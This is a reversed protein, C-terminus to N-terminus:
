FPPPSAAIRSCNCHVLAPACKRQVTIHPVCDGRSSASLRECAVSATAHQLHHHHRNGNGNGDRNCHRSHDRHHHCHVVAWDPSPGCWLACVSASDVSALTLSHAARAHLAAAPLSAQQSAHGVGLGVCVCRSACVQVCLRAAGIDEGTKPLHRIARYPLLRMLHHLLPPTRAPPLSHALCAAQRHPTRTHQGLRIRIHTSAHPHHTPTSPAHTHTHTPTHTRPHPHHTHTHTRPHTHTAM